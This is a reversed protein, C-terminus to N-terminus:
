TAARAALLDYVSPSTCVEYYKRDTWEKLAFSRADIHPIRAERIALRHVIGPAVPVTGAYLQVRGENWLTPLPLERAALSIEGQLKQFGAEDLVIGGINYRVLFEEPQGGTDADDVTQFTFVNFITEVGQCFRRASKSCSSLRDSLNLAPSIMIPTTGDMLYMPATDQYSIGIGLELNPLGAKQSQENYGRVIEIIEKALVCARAVGLEPEDEHEFLALIIADGELFLKHAQYKPLLKNIPDYFNLSFYSAPNLGREYLRRTLQTSDRIDAKVIVHRTIKPEAPKQEQALLFEYLTHNIASLERLKSSAILHITDLAASVAELRRLDRHYRMFDRLFRAALKAREAGRFQYVRKAAARLNEPSLKGHEQLLKQVLKWEVPSILAQKLQQPSIPPSYEALLPAAEYAAIVHELVEETQLRDVWFMLAAKRVPDETEGGELLTQANEAENLLGDLEADDDIAYGLSRLFGGAIAEMREWRDPDTEHYGIMVYLEAALFDDRGDETFLLRNLFLEYTHEAGNGFLSRRTRALARKELDRFTVFLEQGIKRLTSKKAVQFRAVRDRLEIGKHPSSHRASEYEKVKTQCRELVMAFQASMEQRMFKIVALRCLMDLGLNGENKSRNLSSTLLELLADEFETAEGNRQAQRAMISPPRVAPEETYLDRVDGCQVVLRALHARGLEVLRPSLYVDHRLNDIGTLLGELKLVPLYARLPVQAACGSLDVRERFLAM